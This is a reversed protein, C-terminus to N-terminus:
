FKDLFRSMNVKMHVLRTVVDRPDYAAWILSIRHEHTRTHNVAGTSLVLDCCCSLAPCASTAIGDAVVLQPACHLQARAGAVQRREQRKGACTNNESCVAHHQLCTRQPLWISECFPLLWVKSCACFSCCLVCM